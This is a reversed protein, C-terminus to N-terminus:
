CIFARCSPCGNGSRDSRRRGFAGEAAGQLMATSVACADNIPKHWRNDGDSAYRFLSPMNLYKSPLRRDITVFMHQMAIASDMWACQEKESQVGCRERIGDLADLDNRLQNAAQTKAARREEDRRQWLQQLEAEECQM